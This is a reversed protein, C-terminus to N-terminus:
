GLLNLIRKLIGGAKEKEIIQFTKNEPDFVEEADVEKYEAYCAGFGDSRRGGFGHHHIFDDLTEKIMGEIDMDSRDEWVIYFPKTRTGAPVTQASKLSVFQKGMQEGRIPRTRVHIHTSPDLTQKSPDCTTVADKSIDLVINEVWVNLNIASEKEGSKFVKDSTKAQRGAFASGKVTKRANLAEKMIGKFMYGELIYEGNANKAFLNLMKQEEEAVQDMKPAEGFNEIQEGKEEPTLKKSAKIDAKKREILFEKMIEENAPKTGFCPTLFTLQVKMFRKNTTSM